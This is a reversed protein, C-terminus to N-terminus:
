LKIIIAYTSHIGSGCPEYNDPITASSIDVDESEESAIAAVNIDEDLVELTSADLTYCDDSLAVSVQFADLDTDATNTLQATM